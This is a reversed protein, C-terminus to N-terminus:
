AADAARDGEAEDDEVPYCFDLVAEFTAVFKDRQAKPWGEGEPPLKALLGSLPAPLGPVHKSGSGAPTVRDPTRRPTNNATAAARPRPAAPARPAGAKPTILGAAVCLGAFLSVMREQQGVPNYGRFADCIRVEDDTSPDVFAFVDAYAGKLWETLRAKYDAEPAVRIGEFVNTPMGDEGILDLTILTQITRPILTEAVGARALVEANIPATLGRTRYRTILDIIAGAPAYPGPRDRTVPM